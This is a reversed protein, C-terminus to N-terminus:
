ITKKKLTIFTFEDFEQSNAQEWQETDYEPFYINGPYDKKILSLYMTDALPLTQAYISAGGIIFADQHYSHATAIANPITTCIDCGAIPEGTFSVVINHRNPLPRGISNYTNRGMIIPRGTTMKKFNQLDDPIHWPLKNDMGIVRNKTMGAIIAIM